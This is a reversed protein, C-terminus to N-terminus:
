RAKLSALAEEPPPNLSPSTISIPSNKNGTVMYGNVSKIIKTVDLIETIQYALANVASGRVFDGVGVCYYSGLLLLGIAVDTISNLSSNILGFSPSGILGGIMFNAESSLQEALKANKALM